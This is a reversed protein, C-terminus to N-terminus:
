QAGGEASSSSIPQVSSTIAQYKLSKDTTEYELIASELEYIRKLRTATRMSVDKTANILSRATTTDIEVPEAAKEEAIDVRVALAKAYLNAVNDRQITMNQSQQEKFIQVDDGDGYQATYNTKIDQRTQKLDTVDSMISPVTNQLKDVSGAILGNAQSALTNTADINTQINGLEESLGPIDTSDAFDTAATFAGEIDGAAVAKGVAMASNVSKKIGNYGKQGARYVKQSFELANMAKKEVVDVKKLAKQIREKDAQAPSALFIGLFLIHLFIKLGKSM